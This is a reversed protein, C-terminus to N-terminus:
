FELSHNLSVPSHNPSAPTLDGWILSSRKNIIFGYTQIPSGPEILPCRSSGFQMFGTLKAGVGISIVGTLWKIPQEWGERAAGM